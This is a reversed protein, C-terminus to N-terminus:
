CCITDAEIRAQTDPVLWPFGDLWLADRGPRPGAHGSFLARSFTSSPPVIIALDWCKGFIDAVISDQASQHLGSGDLGRFFDVETISFRVQVASGLANHTAILGQFCTGVDAQRHGGGFLHIARIFRSGSAPKVLPAELAM